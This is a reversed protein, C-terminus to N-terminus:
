FPREVEEKLKVTLRESESKTIIGAERLEIVLKPNYKGLEKLSLTERSVVSVEAVIGSESWTGMERLEFKVAELEAQLKEIQGKLTMFRDALEIRDSM